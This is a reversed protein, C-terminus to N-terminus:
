PRIVARILDPHEVQLRRSGSLLGGAGVQECWLAPPSSVDAAPQSLQPEVLHNLCWSGSIIKLHAVVSTVRLKIM